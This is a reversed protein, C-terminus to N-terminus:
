DCTHRCILSDFPWRLVGLGTPGHLRRFPLAFCRLAMFVAFLFRSASYPWSSPSFSARLVTPGGSAPQGFLIMYKAFKLNRKFEAMLRIMCIRFVEDSLFPRMLRASARYKKVIHTLRGSFLSTDPAQASATPVAKDRHSLSPSQFSIADVTM